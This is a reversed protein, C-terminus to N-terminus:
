LIIGVSAINYKIKKLIEEQAIEGVNFWTVNEIRKFWTLQRKAYHRTDRKILFVAEDMTAIGKLYYLIEKYGLGQMAVTSKHYGMRKLNKVEELLGKEMMRDVRKNIRDYLLSREMTLGIIKFGYKPPILRSAEQHSSMPKKTYEFVELARIIRKLDNVHIRDAAERDVRRLRDHLYANGKEEAERKLRERLEWDSITESFNINYILSNIYLGTGGVVIPVKGKKLIQEISNLALEKYRAVSFEEDPYVVSILHHPIGDMEEADPKATGIDMFKYVQMSDASVIEGNIRKALEISLGTKGSATPGIIVIVNEMSM